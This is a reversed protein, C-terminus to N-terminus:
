PYTVLPRRSTLRRIIASFMVGAITLHRKVFGPPPPVNMLSNDRLVAVVLGCGYRSHSLRDRFLRSDGRTFVSETSRDFGILRHAIFAKEGKEILIIEGVKPVYEQPPLVILIDGEKLGPLMSTGRFPILRLGDPDDSDSLKIDGHTKDIHRLIIKRLDQDSMGNKKIGDM